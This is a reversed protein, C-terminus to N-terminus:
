VTCQFYLVQPTEDESRPSSLRIDFDDFSPLPNGLDLSYGSAVVEVEIDSANAADGPHECGPHDMPLTESAPPALSTSVQPTIDIRDLDRSPSNSEDDSQLGAGSIVTDEDVPLNGKSQKRYWRGVCCISFCCCCCCCLVLILVWVALICHGIVMLGAVTEGTSDMNLILSVNSNLHRFHCSTNNHSRQRGAQVITVSDEESEQAPASERPSSSANFVAVEPKSAMKVNPMGVQM